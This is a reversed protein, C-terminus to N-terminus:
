EATAGTVRVLRDIHPQSREYLLRAEPGSSAVPTMGYFRLRARMAPTQTAMRAAAELRALVAAPTGAPAVMLMGGILRLEPDDFGQESLTPTEPLEPARRSDIVAISRLSGATVHPLFTGLSGLAMSVRGAILDQTMPAEGRYPVHVMGLKRTVSLYESLMHSASGTGYSGYSVGPGGQGKVWAVFESANRAPVDKHVAMVLSGDSIHSVFSFDRQPQYSLQKFLFPAYYIPGSHALLVTYGDAPARAVWQAGLTGGAGSKNEVVITQGLEKGMLEALTRALADIGGGPPAPVVFTVPRAPFSQSQSQSQAAGAAVNLGVYASTWRLWERRTGKM